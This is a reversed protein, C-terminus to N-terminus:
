QVCIFDKIKNYASEKIGSIRMIDEPTEFLGDQNRSTIIDNAKADGIGPLVMLQDKTATNINVLGQKTGTQGQADTVNEGRVPVYLKQGDKVKEVLNLYTTDADEAFGGAKDIIEYIRSGEKCQYVGPSAVAGCVHIYLQVSTEKQQMEQIELQQTESVATSNLEIILDKNYDAKGTRSVTYLIGGAVIIIVVVIYKLYRRYKYNFKM